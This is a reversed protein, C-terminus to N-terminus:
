RTAEPMLKDTGILSNQTSHPWAHTTMCAHCHSSRHSSMVACHVLYQSCKCNSSLAAYSTLPLNCSPLTWNIVQLALCHGAFWTTDEKFSCSWLNSCVLETFNTSATTKAVTCGCTSRKHTYPENFTWNSQMVVAHSQGCGRLHMHYVYETPVRSTTLSRSLRIARNTPFGAQRTNPMPKAVLEVFM